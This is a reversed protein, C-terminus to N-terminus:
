FPALLSPSHRCDDIQVPEALRLLAGLILAFGCLVPSSEPAALRPSLKGVSFFFAAAAFELALPEVSSGSGRRTLVSLWGTPRSPPRTSAYSFEGSRCTM